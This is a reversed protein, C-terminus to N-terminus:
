QKWSQKLLGIRDCHAIETMIDGTGFTISRLPSIASFLDKARECFFYLQDIGLWWSSHLYSHLFDSLNEGAQGALITVGERLGLLQENVKDAQSQLAPDVSTLTTGWLASIIARLFIRDQM